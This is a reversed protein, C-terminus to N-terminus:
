YAFQLPADEAPADEPEHFPEAGHAVYRLFLRVEVVALVAYLLTFVTMSTWIEAVSVSPSVGFATTMLGNVLWPQRGTETFIWGFSNGFIPLLPAAIAAWVWLRSVPPRSRGRTVWLLLLSLGMSAFGLGMMIRFTWYALPVNPTYDGDAAVRAVDSGYTREIGAVMEANRAKIENIGEVTGNPNGTAMFALVKPVKIAFVEETGDLSGITFVSFAAGTESEYLAEAAAMKMPQVETMIKGQVDGTIVVGLSAVLTLVAGLRTAKRYMPVDAADSAGPQAARRWLWVGVGMVVAGGVMYASTIVHPFAVLQVKNTLIALFDTMEARGSDPNYRFGVPNQMFSNAALIFYGSLLTGIHVVWMTAAHLKEPIRGWGFIWLGLFTSEVFFALLAELALPAGFIDGVFRSYDSWNMGFQFEQVIGTVLGLAFNITFLKGLFKTLRLWEPRRTRVWLVHTVAVIFSLGITVPVFLFHYVTTIAFQWRALDVPDM